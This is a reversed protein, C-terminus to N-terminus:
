KVQIRFDLTRATHGSDDVFRSTTVVVKGTAAGRFGRKPTYQLVLGKIRRGKCRGTKM